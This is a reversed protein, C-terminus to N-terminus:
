TSFSTESSPFKNLIDPPRLTPPFDRSRLPHSSTDLILLRLTLYSIHLSSLHSTFLHFTSSSNIADISPRSKWYLYKQYLRGVQPISPAFPSSLLDPLKDRARPTSFFNSIPSYFQLSLNAVRHPPFSTLTKLSSFIHAAPNSTREGFFTAHRSEGAMSYPIM